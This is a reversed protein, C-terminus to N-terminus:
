CRSCALAHAHCACPRSRSGLPRPVCGRRATQKEEQAEVLTGTVTALYNNGLYEFTLKQDETFVQARNLCAHLAFCM